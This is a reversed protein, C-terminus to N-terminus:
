PLLLNVCASGDSPNVLEVRAVAARTKLFDVSTPRHAVQALQTDITLAPREQRRPHRCLGAFRPYLEDNM